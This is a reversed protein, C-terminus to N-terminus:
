TPTASFFFQAQNKRIRTHEDATSGRDGLNIEMSDNSLIRRYRGSIRAGANQKSAWLGAM